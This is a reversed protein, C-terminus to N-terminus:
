RTSAIVVISSPLRKRMSKLKLNQRGGVVAAFLQELGPATQAAVLPVSLAAIQRGFESPQAVGGESELVRGVLAALLQQRPKV